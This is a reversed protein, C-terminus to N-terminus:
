DGVKTIFLMEKHDAFNTKGANFFQHAKEFVKTTGKNSLVETIFDLEIKNRSSNSKSNYTNNYSVVIYKCDLENILDSFANPATHRCYESMNEPNPKLATGFLEPKEWKTINELIHYFRSYQRSNYPPDIYCVDARIHRVLENSDERYIEITKQPLSRPAVIKFQFRPLIDKGKIYADYHGVTNACRDLSYLLSAILISYEKESLHGKSKEIKERIFGIIKADNHNFFKGGFNESVYNEKLNDCELSRFDNAFNEIVDVHYDQQLFFAKYIIENSFLIDNIIVNDFYPLMTDVVVGTGSFIDMFSNGVCHEEIMEKIWKSLKYKSGTYRRNYIEFM